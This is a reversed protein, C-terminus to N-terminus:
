FKFSAKIGGAHSTTDKSFAGEYNLKLDFGQSTLINMGVELNASNKDFVHQGSITAFTALDDGVVANLDISDENLFTLGAKVYPRFTLGNAQTINTGIEVSPSLGLVWATSSSQTIRAQGANQEQYGGLHIYQASLDIGPKLYFSGQDFLYTFRANSRVASNRQHSKAIDAVNNINVDRHTSYFGQSGTLSFYGNLAGWQNKLVGGVTLRTGTSSSYHQTADSIDIDSFDLAGGFGFRWQNQLAFQVGGAFGGHKQKFGPGNDNSDHDTIGGTLKFWHCQGEQTVTSIDGNKPCSMLANGFSKDAELMTNIFPAHSWSSLRNMAKSLEEPSLNYLQYPIYYNSGGFLDRLAYETLVPTNNYLSLASIRDELISCCDLGLWAAQAKTQLSFSIGLMIATSALLAKIPTKVEKQGFM